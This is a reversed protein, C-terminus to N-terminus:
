THGLNSKTTGLRLRRHDDLKQQYENIQMQLEAAACPHLHSHHMEELQEAQLRELHLRVSQFEVSDHLINVLEERSYYEKSLQISM